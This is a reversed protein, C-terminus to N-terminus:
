LSGFFFAGFRKDGELLIYFAFGIFFRLDISHWLRERLNVVLEGVGAAARLELMPTSRHDAAASEAAAITEQSARAETAAYAVRETLVQHDDIDRGGSTIEVGRATATALLSEAGRQLLRADDLTPRPAESM